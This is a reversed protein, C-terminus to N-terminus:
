TRVIQASGSLLIELGVKASRTKDGNVLIVKHVYVHVYLVDVLQWVSV